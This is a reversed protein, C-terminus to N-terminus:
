RGKKWRNSIVKKLLRFAPASFIFQMLPPALEIPYLRLQGNSYGEFISEAFSTRIAVRYPQAYDLLRNIPETLAFLYFTDAPDDLGVYIEMELKKIKFCHIVRKILLMSQNKFGKIGLFEYATRMGRIAKTIGFKRRVKEKGSPRRRAKVERSILGFLWSWRLSFRPKGQIYLQWSLDIPISLILVGLIIIGVIVSVIIIWM